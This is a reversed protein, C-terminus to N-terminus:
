IIRKGRRRIRQPHKMVGCADLYKQHKAYNDFVPRGDSQVEIDPFERKHEAIQSPHLALSDSVIPRRYDKGSTNVHEAQFDRRMNVKCDCCEFPQQSLEMSRVVEEQKGCKPCILCYRPM